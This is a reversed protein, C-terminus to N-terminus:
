PKTPGLKWTGDDQKIYYCTVSDVIHEPINDWVYWVISHAWFVNGEKLNICTIDVTTSILITVASNLAKQIDEVNAHTEVRPTLIYEPHGKSWDWESIRVAKTKTNNGTGHCQDCCFSSIRGINGTGNCKECDMEFEGFAEKFEEISNVTVPYGVPGKEVDFDLPCFGCVECRYEPGTDICFKCSTM